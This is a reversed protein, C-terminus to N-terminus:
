LGEGHSMEVGEVERFECMNCCSVRYRLRPGSISLSLIDCVRLLRECKGMITQDVLSRQYHGFFVASVALM